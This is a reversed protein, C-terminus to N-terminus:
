MEDEDEGEMDDEDDDHGMYGDDREM